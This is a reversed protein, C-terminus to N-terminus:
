RDQLRNLREQLLLKRRELYKKRKNTFDEMSSPGADNGKSGQTIVVSNGSGSQSISTKNKQSTHVTVTNASGKSKIKIKSGNSTELNLDIDGCNVIKVHNNKASITKQCITNSLVTASKDSAFVSTCATTAFLVSNVLKFCLKYNFTTNM